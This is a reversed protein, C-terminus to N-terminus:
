DERKTKPILILQVGTLIVIAELVMIKILDWM